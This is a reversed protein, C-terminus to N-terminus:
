KAARSAQQDRGFSLMIPVLTFSLLLAATVGTAMYVGMERIPKIDTAFFSLFGAATTPTTLVCPVGVVALARVIAERRQLGLHRQDQFEAIIHVATGIGACVLLIPLLIVLLTLPWHLLGITGLTWFVSLVVVLLPAVMACLSRTTGLLILTAVVLACFGLRQSETTALTDFEYDLIPGGVAYVTFGAHEPKALIEYIVPPSDKRPDTKDQAYREFELLIAATKGDRSILNDLYLPEHMARERAQALAQTTEPTGEILDVIEIGGAVGRVYEANGLFKMDKLYPVHAELDEALARVRRLTEPQFVEDTEILIYVFDDNGFITRFKDQLQRTRDHELFFAENSNDMRLHRTSYLFFATLGALTLLVPWRWRLQWEAFRAFFHTAKGPPLATHVMRARYRRGTRGDAGCRIKEARPRIEYGAM